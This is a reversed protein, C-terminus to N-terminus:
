EDNGKDLNNKAWEQLATVDDNFLLRLIVRYKTLAVGAEQLDALGTDLSTSLLSMVHPSGEWDTVASKESQGPRAWEVRGESGERLLSWGRPELIERWSFQTMQEEIESTVILSGWVGGGSIKVPASYVSSERSRTEKIKEQRLRVADASITNIEEPTITRKSSVELRVGTVLGGDNKPYRLSGPVRLMRTVDILRDINSNFNKEAVSQLYAWWNYILTKGESVPVRKDLKWYAHLGGSGTSVVYSPKVELAGLFEMAHDQSEFCGPKVDLDCTVGIVSEVESEVLRKSSKAGPISPSVTFYLDTKDTLAIFKQDGVNPKIIESVFTKAPLRVSQIRPRRTARSELVPAKGSIVIVDEPEFWGCILDVAHAPIVTRDGFVEALTIM